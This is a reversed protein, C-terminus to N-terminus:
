FDDIIRLDILEERGTGTLLSSFMRDSHVHVNEAGRWSFINTQRQKLGKFM